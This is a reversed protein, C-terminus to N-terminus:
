LSGVLEKSLVLAKEALNRARVWDADREAERSQALFGRVKEALDLQGANLQRGYVRQLNREALDRAERTKQEHM